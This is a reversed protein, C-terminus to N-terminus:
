SHGSKAESAAASQELRRFLDASRPNGLFLVEGDLLYTPVAVIGEPRARPERELDIVRVACGPFRRAAAEALRRAEVCGFCSSTLYVDLSPM